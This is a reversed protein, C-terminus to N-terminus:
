LKIIKKVSRTYRSNISIFYIGAPLKDTEYQLIHKGSSTHRFEIQEVERGIRDHIILTSICTRELDYEINLLHTCPNPYIRIEDESDENWINQTNVPLAGYEYAGMDIIAEGNGNGDWIRVNNRLDYVPLNLGLTDTTGADICPSGQSIQFPHEGSGQFLPDQDINGDLWNLNVYSSIASEGGRIDSYSIFVESESDGSIEYDDLDDRWLVSNVITLESELVEISYGQYGPTEFSMTTANKLVIESNTASIDDPYNNISLLNCISAYSEDFFLGGGHSVDMKVNTYNGITSINDIRCNCHYFWAGGGGFAYNYSSDNEFVVDHMDVNAYECYMGGGGDRCLNNQVTINNMIITDSLDMYLDTISIGGGITNSENNEIILNQLLLRSSVTDWDLVQIGGGGDYDTTNGNVISFGNIEYCANTTYGTFLIQIVGSMTDLGHIITHTIDTTDESFIYNSALTLKKNGLLGVNEYYIGQAVLVTDGSYAANIGDQITPYDQPINIIQAPLINVFLILMTFIIHEKM